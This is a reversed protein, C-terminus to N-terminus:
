ESTSLLILKLTGISEKVRTEVLTDHDERGRFIPVAQIRNAKYAVEEFDSSLIKRNKYWHPVIDLDEGEDTDYDEYSEKVQEKKKRSWGFLTLKVAAAYKYEEEKERAEKEDAKEQKMANEVAKYHIAKPRM